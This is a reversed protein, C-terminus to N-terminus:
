RGLRFLYNCLNNEDTYDKKHGIKNNYHLPDLRQLELPHPGSSDKKEAELNKGENLIVYNIPIGQSEGYRKKAGFGM